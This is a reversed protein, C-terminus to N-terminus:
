GTFVPVLNNPMQCTCATSNELIPHEQRRAERGARCPLKEIKGMEERKDFRRAPSAPLDM